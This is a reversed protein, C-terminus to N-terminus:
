KLLEYLFLKSEIHTKYYQKLEDRLIGLKENLEPDEYGTKKLSGNGKVHSVNLEKTIQYVGYTLEERYDASRKARSLIERWLRLLEQEKDDLCMKKLDATAVTDGRTDDFCLENRYFRGDAGWFSLCKNQNSLCTYILCAKKLEADGEYARGGDATTFYVDKDYWNEQNYFKACWVPLKTLYNDKRLHFGFSQELESKTNCRTLRYNVAKIPFNIATMYGIINENYIPRRGVRYAYGSIPYGDSACSVNTEVDADFRRNDAYKSPPLSVAKIVITRHLDVCHGEEIDFAKLEWERREEQANSWLVCSIVSTTAHFHKRNFAYGEVFHKKVLGVSKFYKVPSFVVYSDTEQRLFYEFGSWIFLNSLERASSQMTKYKKINNRFQEAVYLNRRNSRAKRSRNGEEFNDAASSDAYPPNELLIITCKSDEVYKRLITNEIYDRSLADANKVKGNEFILDEESQPIIKRVDSGVRELLIKYEYYEYTSVVCHSILEDGNQDYKGYLAMELNGTGACRDLIIYDNGEPVLEVAKLVLEAAKECYPAPTYFAGLDKKKLRENLCDMLYQFKENTAEPYPNILGQFQRPERIEGKQNIKGTGDGLFDGKTANPLERYYRQAWAVICDEDLDIPVYWDSERAVEHSLLKHLRKADSSYDFEALPCHKEDREREGVYAKQIDKMFDKTAYVYVRTKEQDLLLIGSPISEGRLRMKSLQRIAHSLAKEPLAISTHVALLNGRYVCTKNTVFNANEDNPDIQYKQFFSLREM